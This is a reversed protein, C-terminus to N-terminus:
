FCNNIMVGSINFVRELMILYYYILIFTDVYFHIFNSLYFSILKIYSINYKNFHFNLIIGARSKRNLKARFFPLIYM